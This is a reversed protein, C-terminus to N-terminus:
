RFFTHQKSNYNEEVSQTETQRSYSFRLGLLFKRFGQSNSQIHLKHLQFFSYYEVCTTWLHKSSRNTMM